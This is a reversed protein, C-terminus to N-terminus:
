GETEASRYIAVASLALPKAVDSGNPSRIPGGEPAARRWDASTHQALARYSARYSAAGDPPRGTASEPKLM